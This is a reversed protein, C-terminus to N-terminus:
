VPIAELLAFREFSLQLAAGQAAVEGLDQGSFYDRV